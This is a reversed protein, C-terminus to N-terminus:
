SFRSKDLDNFEKLKGLFYGHVISGMYIKSVKKQSLLKRKTHMLWFNKYFHWHAKIVALFDDFGGELLFKLGAIGDLLFRVVFVKWLYESPLNKYLMYFNNRFNLYTKQSSKKPLTGGGIHYVVSDPCFMIKYGCNKFRWCLDIEEMHAFFDEDLGGVENFISARVFMCAGTAWFIETVDDYQGKDTELSQFIRGRCFPYGYMTIFGGAAGAYEFKEREYFSRLKPQCAAILPEADMLEIVPEIWQPSVEIDSNLLVYYEADIQILADNYGKAYGGNIENQIIKLEPYNKQLFEISDDTSANDAIIVESYHPNYKLVFPLFQQLFKKGNWNLIVVAVKM